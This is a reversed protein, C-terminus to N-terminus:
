DRESSCVSPTCNNPHFCLGPAPSVSSLLCAAPGLSPPQRADCRAPDSSGTSHPQTGKDM